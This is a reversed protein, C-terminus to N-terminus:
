VPLRTTLNSSFLFKATGGRGAADSGSREFGPQPNVALARCYAASCVTDAPPRRRSATHQALIKREGLFSFTVKTNHDVRLEYRNCKKYM